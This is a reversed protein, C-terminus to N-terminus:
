VNGKAAGIFGTVENHIGKLLPPIGQRVLLLLLAFQNLEFYVITRFTTTHSRLEEIAHHFKGIGNTFWNLQQVIRRVM